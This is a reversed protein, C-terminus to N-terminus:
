EHFINKSHGKTHSMCFHIFAFFLVNIYLFNAKLIYKKLIEAIAKRMCEPCAIVDHEYMSFYLLYFGFGTLKYRKLSDTERGCNPCPLLDNNDYIVIKDNM